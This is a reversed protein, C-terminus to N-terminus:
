DLWIRSSLVSHSITNKQLFLLVVGFQRIPCQENLSVLHDFLPRAHVVLPNQDLILPGSRELKAVPEVRTLLHLLQQSFCAKVPDCDKSVQVSVFVPDLRATQDRDAPSPKILPWESLGDM